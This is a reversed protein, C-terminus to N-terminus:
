REFHSRRRNRRDRPLGPVVLRVVRSPACAGDGLDLPRRLQSGFALTVTDADDICVLLAPALPRSSSAPLFSFLAPPLTGLAGNSIGLLLRALYVPGKSTVLTQILLAVCGIVSATFFGARRGFYRSFPGVLLSAVILGLQLLSTILQQFTTEIVYKGGKGPVGFVRLFGQMAQFGNIITTDLNYRRLCSSLTLL